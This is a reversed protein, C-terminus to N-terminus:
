MDWMTKESSGIFFWCISLDEWLWKHKGYFHIWRFIHPSFILPCHVWRELITEGFRCKKWKHIGFFLFVDVNEVNKGCMELTEGLLGVQASLQSAQVLAAATTGGKHDQCRPPAAFTPWAASPGPWKSPFGNFLGNFFMKKSYLVYIFILIFDELEWLAM